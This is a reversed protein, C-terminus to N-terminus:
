SPWIPAFDVRRSARSTQSFNLEETSNLPFTQSFLQFIWTKRTSNLPFTQSFLQFIWTKRSLWWKRTTWTDKSTRIVRQNVALPRVPRITRWYIKRQKREATNKPSKGSHLGAFPKIPTKWVDSSSGSVLLSCRLDAFYDSNKLM